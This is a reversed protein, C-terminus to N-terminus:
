GPGGQWRVAAQLVGASAGDWETGLSWFSGKLDGHGIKHQGQPKWGRAKMAKAIEPDQVSGRLGQHLMKSKVESFIVVERGIESLVHDLAKDFPSRSDAILAAKAKTMPAPAAPNFNSINRRLLKAKWAAIQRPGERDLRAYYEPKRRERDIRTVHWRVDAPETIRVPVDENSAAVIALPPRAPAFDQFKLQARLKPETILAKTEGYIDRDRVFLEEFFALRKNYIGGQFDSRLEANTLKVYNTAGLMGGWTEILAGKGLQHNRSILLLAIRIKINPRQLSHAMVDLWLDREGEDNPVLWDIHDEWVSCDGPVAPIGDDIWTNAVKQGLSNKYIRRVEGPTYEGIDAKAALPSQTFVKSKNGRTLLMKPKGEDDKKDPSASKIVLHDHTASFDKESKVLRRETDYFKNGDTTYVNTRILGLLNADKEALEKPGRIKGRILCGACADPVEKAFSDCGHPGTKDLMYNLILNTDDKDYRDKDLASLEHFNQRGRETRGIVGAAMAWLWQLVSGPETKLRSIAACGALVSEIKGKIEAKPEADPDSFMPPKPPPTPKESLAEIWGAPLEALPTGIPDSHWHYASGARATPPVNAQGADGRVDVGCLAYNQHGAIQWGFGTRNPLDEAEEPRAYFEQTGGSPTSQTLTEPLKGYKEELKAKDALGDKGKSVDFDLVVIRSKRGTAIGVGFRSEVGFWDALVAAETTAGEKWGKWKRGTLPDAPWKNVPDVPIVHWGLLAYGLAAELTPNTNGAIPQRVINM